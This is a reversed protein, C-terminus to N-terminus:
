HRYGAAQTETITVPEGDEVHLYTHFAPIFALTDGM